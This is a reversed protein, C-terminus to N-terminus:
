LSNNFYDQPFAADRVYVKNVTIPELIINGIKIMTYLKTVCMYAICKNYTMFMLHTAKNRELKKYKVQYM